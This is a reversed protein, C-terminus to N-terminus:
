SGSSQESDPCSTEHQEQLAKDPYLIERLRTWATSGDSRIQQFRKWAMRNAEQFTDPDAQWRAVAFVAVRKYDDTVSVVRGCTHDICEPISGRGYAIVPVGARLAELIVLPEAENRYRTPFLLADVSQYFRMKDVGYVPGLYETQPLSQLRERVRWETETDQFPGALWAKLELGHEEAAEVVDLFEFM